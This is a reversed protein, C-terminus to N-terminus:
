SNVLLHHSIAGGLRISNKFFYLPRFFILCPGMKSLKIKKISGPPDTVEEIRKNRHEDFLDVQTRTTEDVIIIRSPTEPSLAFYGVAVFAIIIMALFLNIIRKETKKM